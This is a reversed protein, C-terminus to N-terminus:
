IPIIQLDLIYSIRQHTNRTSRLLISRTLMLELKDAYYRVDLEEAEEYERFTVDDPCDV